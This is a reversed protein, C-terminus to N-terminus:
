IEDVMADHGTRAHAAHASMESRRMIRSGHLCYEESVDIARNFAGDVHVIRESTAAERRHKTCNWVCMQVPDTPGTVIAFDVYEGIAKSDAADSHHFRAAVARGAASGSLQHLLCMPADFPKTILDKIQRPMRKLLMRLAAPDNKASEDAEMIRDALASAHDLWFCLPYTDPNRRFHATLINALEAIGGRGIRQQGDNDTCDIMVLHQNCIRAAGKVRRRESRVPDNHAIAERFEILEYATGEVSGMRRSKSLDDLTRMQALRKRPVKGMHSMLRTRYEPKDGEVFILVVVPRKGGKGRNHYTLDAAYDISGAVGHVATLTKCSGYPGMFLLVEHGHWGGGMFEDFISLGTTFLPVRRSHDWDEPFAEGLVVDTLGSVVELQSRTKELEGVLDIPITGDRLISERHQAAVFEELFQKCTDIAVQAYSKSKALNAGHEEDDFIYDIFSDAEELEEGSLLDPNDTVRQNVDGRLTTRKPLVNFKRYHKQVVSWIVSLPASISRIHAVTLLERVTDFAKKNRVFVALMEEKKARDLESRRTEAAQREPRRRKVM